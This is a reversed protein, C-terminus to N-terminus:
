TIVLLSFYDKCLGIPRFPIGKIGLVRPLVDM